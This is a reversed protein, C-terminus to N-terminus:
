DSGRYYAEFFDLQEPLEDDIDVPTRQSRALLSNITDKPHDLLGVLEAESLSMKRKRRHSFVFYPSLIPHPRYEPERTEGADTPKTGPAWRLALDMVSARLIETVRDREERDLDESPSVSFENVEPTHGVPDAAFQGFLRGLGLQLKTVQAGHISLGSFDTLAKLGVAQAVKTQTKASVPSSLSKGERLHAALSRDVLQLLYRINGSALITFVKWGCYYKRIGRKGKMITFLSSYSYNGIRNKWEDSQQVCDRAINVISEGSGRAWYDVFYVELGSRDKLLEALEEDEDAVAQIIRDRHSEVGLKEAEEEESLGPLLESVSRLITDDGPSLRALRQNCVDEAFKAFRDDRLESDIDILAFDAPAVLYEYPSLTERTRLGLERVGVKFCYYEGSQKILTNFVVQQYDQLKEYEDVLIFFKMDRFEDHSKLGELLTDIPAGQLSLNPSEEQDGVNNIHAEFQRLALEVQTYLSELSACDRLNLTAATKTWLSQPPRFPTDALSEHWRLFRLFELVVILNVYHAFLRSWASESLEEGRFASTRNPNVRYYIGVHDLDGPRMDPQAAFRGQYSLSRLVTTKGTGRGGQLFCSHDTTLDRFYAPESFLEFLEERLAEARYSGFLRGLQREATEGRFSTKVPPHATSEM